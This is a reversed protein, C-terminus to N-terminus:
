ALLLLSSSSSSDTFSILLFIFFLFFFFFNFFIPFFFISFISFFWSFQLVEGNFNDLLEYLNGKELPHINLPPDRAMRKTGLREGGREEEEELRQAMIWDELLM